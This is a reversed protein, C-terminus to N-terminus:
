IKIKFTLKEHDFNMLMKSIFVPDIEIETAKRFIKKWDLKGLKDSELNKYNNCTLAVLIETSDDSMLSEKNVKLFVIIIKYFYSWGSQIM